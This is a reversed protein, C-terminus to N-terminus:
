GRHHYLHRYCMLSCHGESKDVDGHVKVCGCLVVVDAEVLEMLVVVRADLVLLGAGVASLLYRLGIDYFAELVFFVTVNDYGVVVKLLYLGFLVPAYLYEM